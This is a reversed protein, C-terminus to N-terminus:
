RSARTVVDSIVDAMKHMDEETLTPHVLFALSTDGLEMAIPLRQESKLGSCEFATEL